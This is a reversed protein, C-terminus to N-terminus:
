KDACARQGSGRQGGEWVDQGGGSKPGRTARWGGATHVDTDNACAILAGIIHFVQETDEKDAMLQKFHQWAKLPRFESGPRDPHHFPIDANLAAM